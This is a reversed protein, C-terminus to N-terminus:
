EAIGAWRDYVGQEMENLENEYDDVTEPADLGLIMALALLICLTQKKM